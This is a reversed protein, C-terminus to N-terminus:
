IKDLENQIERAISGREKEEKELLSDRIEKEKESIERDRERLDHVAEEIDNKFNDIADDSKEHEDILSKLLKDREEKSTKRFQKLAEQVKGSDRTLLLFLIGVSLGLFFEWYKKIAKWAFALKEKIMLFIVSELM